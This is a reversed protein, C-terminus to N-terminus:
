IHILSLPVYCGVANMPVNKHGLIVGPLTEVEIDKMSAMQHEAFNKIQAQAFKIDIIDQVSMQAICDDIECQTLTFRDPSWNDFKASLERVAKEGNREIDDLVTAVIERTKKDDNNRDEAAISTKLWVALIGIEWIRHALQVSIPYVSLPTNLESRQPINM